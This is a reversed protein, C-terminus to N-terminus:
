IKLTDTGGAAIATGTGDTVLSYANAVGTGTGAPVAWNRDTRLFKTLDGEAIGTKPALGDATETYLSTVGGSTEADAWEVDFDADSKKALHQGESGGEPLIPPLGETVQDAFRGEVTTADDPYQPLYQDQDATM